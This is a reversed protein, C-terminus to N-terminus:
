CRLAVRLEFALDTGSRQSASCGESMHCVGSGHDNLSGVATSFAASVAHKHLPQMGTQLSQMYQLTLGLSGPRGAYRSPNASRLRAM